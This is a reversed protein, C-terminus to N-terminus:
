LEIGFYQELREKSTGEDFIRPEFFRPSCDWFLNFEAIEYVDRFITKTKTLEHTEWWKQAARLEARLLKPWRRFEAKGRDGQLPCGMCGVRKEVHFVGDQYYLPHCEIGRQEIFEAVDSDTWQLIPLLVRAKGKHYVRCIEPEKYREARKRSEAARIGQIAYDMVKYEKLYRCCTRRFMTPLGHHEVVEMFSMKRLIEAGNKKVHAITGPPDITSNKYIIRPKVGAMKCLELCVDSDKGGSYSLEVAHVAGYSKILRVSQEIKKQEM